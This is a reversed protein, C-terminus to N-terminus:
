DFCVNWPMPSMDLGFLYHTKQVSDVNSCDIAHGKSSTGATLPSHCEYDYGVRSTLNVCYLVWLNVISSDLYMDECHGWFWPQCSTRTHCSPKVVEQKALPYKLSHLPTRSVPVFGSRKPSQSWFALAKVTSHTDFTCLLRFLGFELRSKLTINWKWAFSSLVKYHGKRPSPAAPLGQTCCCSVDPAPGLNSPAPCFFFVEQCSGASSEGVPVIHSLSYEIVRCPLCIWKDLNLCLVPRFSLVCWSRSSIQLFRWYLNELYFVEFCVSTLPGMPNELGLHASSMITLFDLCFLVAMCSLLLATQLRCYTTRARHIQCTDICLLSAIRLM